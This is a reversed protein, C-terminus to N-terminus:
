LSENIKLGTLYELLYVEETLFHDRGHYKYSSKGELFALVPDYYYIPNALAIHYPMSNDTRFYFLRNSHHAEVFIKKEEDIVLWEDVGPYLQDKVKQCCEKCLHEVKVDYGLASMKNVMDQVKREGGEDVTIETGCKSCALTIDTFRMCYCMAGMSRKAPVEEHSIEKLREVLEARTLKNNMSNVILKTNIIQHEM